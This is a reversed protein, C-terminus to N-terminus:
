RQARRAEVLTDLISRQGGVMSALASAIGSLFTTSLREHFAMQTGVGGVSCRAQCGENEAFVERGAVPGTLGVRHVVGVNGPTDTMWNNREMARTARDGHGIV